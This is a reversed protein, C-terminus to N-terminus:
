SILDQIKHSRSTLTDYKMIYEIVKSPNYYVISSYVIKSTQNLKGVSVKKNGFVLFDDENIPNHGEDRFLILIKLGGNALEVLHNKITDQDFSRREDFLYIRIAVVGRKVASLHAEISATYNSESIHNIANQPENPM